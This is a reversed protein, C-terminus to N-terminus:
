KSGSHFAQRALSVATALQPDDASPKITADNGTSAGSGNGAGVVIEEPTFPSVPVDPIIGKSELSNGNPTYYRATTLKLGSGDDLDYFTQVTGKGFTPVGVLKARGHDHLSAAMTGLHSSNASAAEIRHLHANSSTIGLYDRKEIFRAFFGQTVDEARQLKQLQDLVLPLSALRQLSALDLNAYSNSQGAGGGLSLSATGDLGTIHVSGAIKVNGNIPQGTPAHATIGGCILCSAMAAKALLQITRSRSYGDPTNTLTGTARVFMLDKCIKKAANVDSIAGPDPTCPVSLSEATAQMFEVAYTGDDKPGYIMIRNKGTM